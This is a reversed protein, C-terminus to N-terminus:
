ARVSELSGVWLPARGDYDLVRLGNAGFKWSFSKIVYDSNIFLQNLGYGQCDCAGILPARGDSSLMTNNQFVNGTIAGINDNTVGIHFNRVDTYDQYGYTQVYTATGASQSGLTLEFLGAITNNKIDADGARLAIDFPAGSGGANGHYQYFIGMGLYMAAPVGGIYWDLNAQAFFGASNWGGTMVNDNWSSLAGQAGADILGAYRGFTKFINRYVFTSTSFNGPYGVHNLFPISICDRYVGDFLNRFIHVGTWADVQMIGDWICGGFACDSIRVAGCFGIALASIYNSENGVLGNINGGQGMFAIGSIDFAIATANSPLTAGPQTLSHRGGPVSLSLTAVDMLFNTPLTTSGAAMRPSAIIQTGYAASTAAPGTMGEIHCVMLRVLITQDIVYLGRARIHSTSNNGAGLSWGDYSTYAYLLCAMWACYDTEVNGSNWYCPQSSSTNQLFPYDSHADTFSSYYNSLPNPSGNALTGMPGFSATYAAGLKTPPYFDNVYLAENLIRDPASRNTIGGTAQWTWPLFPTNAAEAELPLATAGLALAGAAFAHRRSFGTKSEPPLVEVVSPAHSPASIRRAWFKKFMALKQEPTQLAAPREPAKRLTSRFNRIGLRALCSRMRNMIRSREGVFSERERNPCRADEEEITPVAAM